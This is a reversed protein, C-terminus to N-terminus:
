KIVEAVVPEAIGHEVTESIFDTSPTEIKDGKGELLDKDDQDIMQKAADLEETKVFELLVNRPNTPDIQSVLSIGLHKMEWEFKAQFGQMKKFRLKNNYQSIYNNLLLILKKMNNLNHNM